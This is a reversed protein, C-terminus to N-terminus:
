SRLSRGARWLFSSRRRARLDAQCRWGNELVTLLDDFILNNRKEDAILASGMKRAQSAAVPAAFFFWVHGGNGSRSRELTALVNMSKCTELFASADEQWSAKDFDVALFWCTEDMLLPYVGITLRGALHDYTV